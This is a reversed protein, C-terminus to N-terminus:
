SLKLRRLFARVLLGKLLSYAYNLHEKAAVNKGENPAASVGLELLVFNM